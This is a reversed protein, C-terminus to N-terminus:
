KVENSVWAPTGRGGGFILKNDDLLLLNAIDMTTEPVFELDWVRGNGSLYVGRDTALYLKTTRESYVISYARSVGAIEAGGKWSAGNDDTWIRGPLLPSV